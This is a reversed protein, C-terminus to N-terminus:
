GNIEEMVKPDGLLKQRAKQVGEMISGIKKAFDKDSEDEGRGEKFAACLKLAEKYYPNFRDDMIEKLKELNEHSEKADEKSISSKGEGRYRLISAARFIGTCETDIEDLSGRASLYKPANGNAYQLLLKA